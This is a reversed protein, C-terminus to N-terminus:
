FRVRDSPATRTAGRPSTVAATALLPEGLLSAGAVAAGIGVFERRSVIDGSM